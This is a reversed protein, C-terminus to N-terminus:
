FINMSYVIIGIVILINGTICRWSIHDHLILWSLIMTFIYSASNVVSGYKFLVGTYAYINMVLTLSFIAYALIVKVNLYHSLINKHEDRTSRKLLIQSCAALFASCLMIIICLTNHNWSM